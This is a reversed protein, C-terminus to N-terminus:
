RVNGSININAGPSPWYVGGGSGPCTKAAYDAPNYAAYGSKNDNRIGQAHPHSLPHYRPRSNNMVSTSIKQEAPLEATFAKSNNCYYDPPPPSSTAHGRGRPMQMEQRQVQPQPQTEGPVQPSSSCSSSHSHSFGSYSSPRISKMLPPSLQQSRGDGGGGGGGGGGGCLGPTLSHRILTNNNNNNSEVSITPSSSTSRSPQTALTQPQSQQAPHYFDGPLEMPFGPSGPHSGIAVPDAVVPQNSPLEAHIYNVKTMDGTTAQIQQQSQQQQQQQPHHHAQWQSPYRLIGSLDPHIQNDGMEQYRLSMSRPSQLPSTPSHVSPPLGALTIIRAVMMESAKKMQKKVTSVMAINCRIEIDERLYLGQKPIGLAARDIIENVNPPSLAPNKEEGLQSGGVSFKTLMDINLPAYVHTQLGWPLDHFCAKFSIKGSGLRGMGPVFQVRETIEYWTSFYEDAPADRPAEVQKYDLVLPNLRIVEGHRHLIELALQRSIYSPFPTVITYTEVTRFLQSM